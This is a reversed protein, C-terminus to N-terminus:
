EMEMIKCKKIIRTIGFFFSINIAEVIKRRKGKGCGIEYVALLLSFSLFLFATSACRLVIDLPSTKRGSRVITRKHPNENWVSTTRKSYITQRNTKLATPLKSNESECFNVVKECAFQFFVHVNNLLMEDRHQSQYIQIKMM